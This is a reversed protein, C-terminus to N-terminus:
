DLIIICLGLYILFGVFYEVGSAFFVDSSDGIKEYVNDERILDFGVDLVDEQLASTEGMFFRDELSSGYKHFDKGFVFRDGMIFFAFKM